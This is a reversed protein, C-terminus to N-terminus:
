DDAGRFYGGDDDLLSYTIMISNINLKQNKKYGMISYPFQGDVLDGSDDKLTLVTSTHATIEFETGDIELSKGTMGDLFSYVSSILTATKATADIIVESDASSGSSMLSTYANKLQVQKEKCRLKGAKFRRTQSFQPELEWIDEDDEWVWEDDEWVLGAKFLIEMLEKGEAGNDDHSVVTMNLDTDQVGGVTIKTCWKNTCAAGFDLQSSKLDFLIEQEDWLTVDSESSDIKPDCLSNKPHKFVYGRRDGRILEDNVFIIATPNFTDNEGSLTTFADFTVDYVYIKDNESATQVTWHVRNNIKDFTGQIHGKQVASGTFLAYQLSIDRTQDKPIKAVRYGDTVYFGDRGAFFVTGDKGSVISNNSICGITNDIAQVNMSGSGTSDIVGTVRYVKQETFLVFADRTASGGILPGDVKGNFSAPVSDADGPISQIFTDPADELNLYYACNNAVVVYKCAPPTDNGYAGGMTYLQVNTEIIEDSQDDQFTTVGYDVEGIYFAVNGNHTSRYIEVKIDSTMYNTNPISIAPINSLQNYHGAGSMDGANEVAVQIPASVDLFTRDAATYSQKYVFWYVYSKSDNADPTITPDSVLTPLGATRGVYTSGNNYFKSPKTYDSSAALIHGNWEALSVQGYKDNGLVIDNGTPLSLSNWTSDYFRIEDLVQAFLAEEFEKFVGIRGGSPSALPCAEDYIESGSRSSVTKDKNILINVMLEFVNDAAYINESIGGSFDRLEKKSM